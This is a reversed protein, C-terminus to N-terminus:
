DEALYTTIDRSCRGNATVKIGNTSRRSSLKGKASNYRNSLLLWKFGLANNGPVTMLMTNVLVVVKNIM